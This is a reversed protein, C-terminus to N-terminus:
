KRLMGIFLAFIAIAGRVIVSALMLLFIAFWFGWHEHMFDFINM